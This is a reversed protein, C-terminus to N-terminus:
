GTFLAELAPISDKRGITILHDNDQIVIDGHPIINESNRTITVILSDPPLKIDRIKKGITASLAEVLLEIIDISSGSINYVRRVNSRRIHRPITSVMSDVPSIAVDVGLRNAMHVYSSNNVLAVTRKTGPTKAYVANVINMEQNNTSAIFLDAKALHEEEEFQEDSIDANLVLVERYKQSLTFCVDHDKEVVTINRGTAVKRIKRFFRGIVHVSAHERELLHRLVHEGMGSGGSVVVRELRIRKRGLQDFISEFASETALLYLKDNELIRTEGTPIVNDQGRLVVIVLFDERIITRPEGVTKGIMISEQDVPISRMQMESEEFLMIDSVAGRDIAASIAQAVEVEPNVAFSIGLFSHNSGETGAYDINTVRAIINPVHFENAM